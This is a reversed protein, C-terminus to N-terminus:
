AMKHEDPPAKTFNGSTVTLRTMTQRYTPGFPDVRSGIPPIVRFKIGSYKKSFIELFNLNIEFNSFFLQYKVHVGIYNIIIRDSRKLILFTKPLLQVSLWFVCKIKLFKKQKHQLHCLDSNTRLYICFVYICHPCFTCNNFTLSTTCWTVLLSLFTLKHSYYM